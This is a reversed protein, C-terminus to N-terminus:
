PRDGVPLAREWRDPERVVGLQAAVTGDLLDLPRWVGADLGAAELHGLWAKQAPTLAGQSTKLERFMAVSGRILVLDPFGPESGKSRLTHYTAWALDRALARVGALLDAETMTRAQRARYETANM